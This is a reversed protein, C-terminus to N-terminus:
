SRIIVFAGRIITFAGRIISSGGRIISSGGRIISSGSRIITFTGRIITFAGHIITFAGRIIGFAGRIIGFSGRIISFAGLLIDNFIRQVSMAKPLFPLGDICSRVKPCVLEKLYAFKSVPAVDTHDIEAEFLNWLRMWDLPTGNFKTIGLKPLKVNTSASKEYTNRM